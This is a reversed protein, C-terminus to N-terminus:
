LLCLVCMVYSPPVSVTYLTPWFLPVLSMVMIRDFRFRNFFNVAFNRLLNTTLNISFSGGSNKNM